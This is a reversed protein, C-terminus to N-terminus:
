GGAHVGPELDELRAGFAGVEGITWRELVQPEPIGFRFPDPQWLFAGLAVKAVFVISVGGPHHLPDNNSPDPLM